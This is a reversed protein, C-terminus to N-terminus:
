YPLGEYFEKVEASVRLDRRRIPRLLHLADVSTVRSLAVYLQGDGFCNPDLNASDYTQGQSKHITVAFAIKLPLQTFEGLVDEVLKTKGTAEDIEVRYDIDQWTYPEIEATAGNDFDVVVSSDKMKKVTGLSGNQYKGNQDNMVSMVRAGECLVLEESTPLEKQFGDLKGVYVHTQQQLAEIEKKNKADAQRNTGFMYIGPQAQATTHANFWDIASDDGSRIKNLQKIFEEDEKQRMVEWLVITHFHMRQWAPAVFAFGAGVDDIQHLWAEELIQRDKDQLVPALQSFDGVVILQKPRKSVKAAREIYRCVYDFVDFRCMSIEDIIIIDAQKVEDRMKTIRKDPLIPGLGIKFVRHLTAGHIQIAAIGTPACVIVNKDKQQAKRLYHKLLTSKGTGAEGTLFINEQGEMVDCATRQEENLVIRQKSIDPFRSANDGKNEKQKLKFESKFGSMEIEKEITQKSGNQELWPWKETTQGRGNQESESWKETTQRSGNQESESWIETTEKSEDQESSLWKVATQMNGNQGSGLWKEAEECTVFGQFVAGPYGKVQKECETWTAYIGPKRGTKVAYYKKKAM